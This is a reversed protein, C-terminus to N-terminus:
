SDITWAAKVVSITRAKSLLEARKKTLHETIILKTGKLKRKSTFTKRRSEYSTFKVIIPRPKRTADNINLDPCNGGLRHSRDICDQTLQLGLKNNSTALIAQDMDKNTELISHLLLGNPRSYQEQADIANYLSRNDKELVTM